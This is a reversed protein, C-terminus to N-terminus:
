IEKLDSQREQILFFFPNLVKLLKYGRQGETKTM